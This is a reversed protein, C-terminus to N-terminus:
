WHVEVRTGVIAFDYVAQIAWPALAICGGTPGSGGGPLLKGYKDLSYSHFGNYRKADFAVFNTVYARGWDTWTLGEERAFVYYTGNATAYFGDASQDWGMAGWVTYIAVGNDYLTVLGSSRDVDIYRNASSAGAISAGSRAPEESSSWGGVGGDFRIYAGSVYGHIGGYMVEYYGDDSPGWWVDLVEGWVVQTIVPSDMTAGSRVNLVDTAVTALDGAAVDRPTALVAAALALAFAILWVHLVTRGRADKPEGSTVMGGDQADRGALSVRAGGEALRCGM